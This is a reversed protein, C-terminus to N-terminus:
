NNRPRRPRKAKPQAAPRQFQRNNPSAFNIRNPTTEMRETPKQEAIRVSMVRDGIALGDLAKIAREAGTLDMMEVFAYGKSIGTQMERIITIRKVMGENSFFQELEIEGMDRPFGVVFLKVM